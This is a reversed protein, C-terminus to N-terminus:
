GSAVQANLSACFSAMLLFVLALLGTQTARSRCPLMQDFGLVSMNQAEVVETRNNKSQCQMQSIMKHAVGPLTNMLLPSCLTASPSTVLSFIECQPFQALHFENNFACSM